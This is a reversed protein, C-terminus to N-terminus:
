DIIGTMIKKHRKLGNKIQERVKESNFHNVVYLRGFTTGRVERKCTPDGCSCKQQKKM